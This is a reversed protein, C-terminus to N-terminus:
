RKPGRLIGWPHMVYGVKEIPTHGLGQAHGREHELRLKWNGMKAIVIENNATDYYGMSLFRPYYSSTIQLLHVFGRKGIRHKYYEKVSLLKEKIM